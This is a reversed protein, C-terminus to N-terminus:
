RSRRTREHKLELVNIWCDCNSAYDHVEEMSTPKVDEETEWWGLYSICAQLDSDAEVLEQLLEGQNLNALAIVYKNM